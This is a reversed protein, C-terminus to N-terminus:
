KEIVNVAANAPGFNEVQVGVAKSPSVFYFVLNSPSGSTQAISLTARGNAAVSYTGAFAQTEAKTALTGSLNAVGDASLLGSAFSTGSSSLLPLTGFAYNGSVSVNSFPGGTQPEFTGFELSDNGSLIFGRDPSVLYFVSLGPGKVENIAGRGLGNSDVTYTGTIPENPFSLGFYNEDNTGSLNGMGDFQVEGVTVDNGAVTFGAAGFVATGNLSNSNFPGGSQQLAMGTVGSGGTHMWLSESSSVVYLILGLPNPQASINLMAEGRGSADVSYTGTFPQDSQLGGAGFGILDIHGASLSGGSATFRGLAVNEDIGQPGALGFAFGGSLATTSFAAPDQKVFFGTGTQDTSDSEILRGGAAVGQSSFSDLSFSLTFSFSGTPFNVATNFTMSGLNNAGVSYTSQTLGQNTKTSGGITVDTNGAILNGNGDATFSGVISMPGATNFGSFLFAYQGSLKGNDSNTTPTTGIGSLDVISQNGGEDDIVLLAVRDGTATPTFTVSFTCSAGAAIVSPCNNAQAFDAFNVGNIAVVGVSGSAGGTNTLIVTRPASTTNIAQNGFALSTPNLSFSSPTNIITVTAATAKTPDAVSRAAVVVAPPNPVTTPATYKGTADIMGCSAGTCGSGSVSWTVAQNAGSPSVTATFQQEGGAQITASTPSVAVGAPPPPQNSVTSATGGGCGGLLVLSVIGLIIPARMVIAKSNM